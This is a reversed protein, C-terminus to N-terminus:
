KGKVLMWKTGPGRGTNFKAPSNIDTDRMNAIVMGNANNIITFMNDNDQEVKWLAGPGPTNTIKVFDGKANAKMAALFLGSHKNKIAFLDGKKM